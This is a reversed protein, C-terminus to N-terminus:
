HPTGTLFSKGPAVLIKHRRIATRGLIIDHAMKGRDALSIEIRWKWDGLHLKTAIVYRIEAIGSTNKIKRRDILKAKCRHLKSLEKSSIHFSVWEVGNVTELQIDTADLASTRAGTDIKATLKEIGFEPFAITERWGIVDFPQKKTKNKLSRM